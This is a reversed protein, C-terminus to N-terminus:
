VSPNAPYKVYQCQILAELVQTEDITIMCKQQYPCRGYLKTEYCPMCSLHEETKIVIHQDGWPKTSTIETPGALTVVSVGLAAAMHGMGTDGSLFLHMKAILGGVVKLPLDRILNIRGDISSLFPLVELDDPGVVIVVRGEPCEKLFRLLVARCLEIPIRKDRGEHPDSGPHVGLVVRGNLGMNSWVKEAHRISKKDIHFYLPGAEIASFMTRLINLNATVRHLRPDVACWHTYSWRRPPMSDGVIIKIGSFLKLFQSIKISLHTCLIAADFNEDKFGRFTKILSIINMKGPIMIRIEDCLHSGDIVDAAAHSGAIVTINAKPLQQRIAWLMPTTMIMDGIGWTQFVLVKKM